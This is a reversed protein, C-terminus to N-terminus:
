KYDKFLENLLNSLRYGALALQHFAATKSKNLYEESPLDNPTIGDYAVHVALDYSEQTWHHSNLDTSELLTEAPFHLMLTQAFQEIHKKGNATLPRKLEYYDVFMCSDWLAHLTVIGSGASAQIPFLKGGKDGNPFQENYLATCHLPMHADYSCKKNTLVHSCTEIGCELSREIKEGNFIRDPDYPILQKHWSSFDFLGRKHDDAWCSATVFDASAPYYESFISILEQVHFKAKPNLRKEAIQAVAMHSSDWWAFIPTTSLLLYFLTVRM